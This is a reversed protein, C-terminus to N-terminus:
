VRKIDNKLGRKKFLKLSHQLANFLANSIKHKLRHKGDTAQRIEWKARLSCMDKFSDSFFHYIRYSLGYNRKM